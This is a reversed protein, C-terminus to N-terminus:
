ATPAERSTSCNFGEVSFDLAEEVKILKIVQGLRQILGDALMTWDSFSYVHERDYSDFAKEMSSRVYEDAETLTM